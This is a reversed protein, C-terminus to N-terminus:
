RQYIVHTGGVGVQGEYTVLGPPGDIQAEMVLTAIKQEPDFRFPLRVQINLAALTGPKIPLKIGPGFANDGTTTPAVVYHQQNQRVSVQLGTIDYPGENVVQVTGRLITVNPVSEDVKMGVDRLGAHGQQVPAPIDTHPAFDTVPVCKIAEGRLGRRWRGVNEPTDRPDLMYDQTGDDFSVIPPRVSKLIQGPSLPAYYLAPPPLEQPPPNASNSKSLSAPASPQGGSLRPSRSVCGSLLFLVLIPICLRYAM